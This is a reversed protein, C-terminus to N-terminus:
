VSGVGPRPENTTNPLPQHEAVAKRASEAEAVAEAGFGFLSAVRVAEYIVSMLTDKPDAKTARSGYATKSSYGDNSTYGVSGTVSKLTPTEM